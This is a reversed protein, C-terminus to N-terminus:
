CTPNTPGTDRLELMALQRLYVDEIAASSDGASADLLRRGVPTLEYPLGRLQLEPLNEPFERAGVNKGHIRVDKDTAFGLKVFASRWKRGFWADNKGETEVIGEEALRVAFEAEEKLGYVKGQFEDAFLRLGRAIRNPNRLTTNGLNWVPVLLASKKTMHWLYM